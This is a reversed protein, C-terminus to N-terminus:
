KNHIGLYSEAKMKFGFIDTLPKNEASFFNPSKDELCCITNIMYFGLSRYSEFQAENFMQDSTSEHPFDANTSQYNVIDMSESEDLTPKIYLLTGDEVAEGDAQSYKIEAMTIYGGKKPRREKKFEISVGMDVRIKHVANGLDSFTFHPDASADCVIILKCRRLVMEYIGLNEFHGGDSLYIYPNTDNTRGFAEAFFLRPSFRPTALNYTDDGRKGTNGLWWGLRINFLAMLFSVAASSTYYGMNPSAAAGSIAAATGLTIAQGVQTNCGYNESARYNGSGDGMNSSGCHLATATFSEAKRNQWRLNNSEALNLTMNVVHFPKQILNKMEIIDNDSDLDTFANATKLRERTRSAGLYARILHERYIASM